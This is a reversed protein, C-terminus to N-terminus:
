ILSDVLLVASEGGEALRRARELARRATHAQEKLPAGIDPVIVPCRCEEALTQGEEPSRDVSLLICSVRQGPSHLAEAIRALIGAGGGPAKATLLIRQGFCFRRDTSLPLAMPAQPLIVPMSLFDPRDKLEDAPIGNIQEIYVMLRCEASDRLAKTKGAILDGERLSFRRVQTHSIYVPCSSRLSTEADLLGSGDPNLSLIGQRAEFEGESLLEPLTMKQITQFDKLYRGDAASPVHVDEATHPVPDQQPQGALAGPRSQPAQHQAAPASPKNWGTRASGNQPSGYGTNQQFSKPNHWARVGDINFAPAKSSITSLVDPKAAPTRAPEAPKPAPAPRQTYVTQQSRPLPRFTIEDGYSDAEDDDDAIISATRTRQPEAARPAPEPPIEDELRVQVASAKLKDIIGQKNIGTPLSIHHERAYARLEAVTMNDFQESM